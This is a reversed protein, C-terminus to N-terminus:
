ALYLLLFLAHMMKANYIQFTSLDNSEIIIDSSKEDDSEKENEAIILSDNDDNDTNGATLDGCFVSRAM